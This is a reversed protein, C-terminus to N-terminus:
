FYLDAALNGHTYWCVAKKMFDETVDFCEALQWLETCGDAVAADLDESSIFQEIAWRDACNEHKKRIDCTAYENYFSGTMCHGIEHGLKMKEDLTSALKFPDIAIYCTDNEMVSLAERKKLEFCDVTINNERAIRYLGMLNMM